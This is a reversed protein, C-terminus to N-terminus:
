YIRFGGTHDTTFLSLSPTTCWSAYIPGPFYSNVRYQYTNGSSVTNDLYSTTNAPLSGNLTTWAGGNLSREIQFGDENSATDSWVVNLYDNVNSKQILCNIPASFASATATTFQQVASWPSELNNTDWFKIRWYYTVGTFTLSSGAYSIDPSRTGSTINAISTKTSDWMVTGTFTNNTNVQIQYYNAPNSDPDSHIASFEPTADTVSSPNTAGECYPTSPASPPANMTFQATSSWASEGGVQDWVKIRWYYTTANLSLPTGAYSIQPTTSGNGVATMATKTSDWMTTGNFASTTNVQIQYYVGTDTANPDTFTAQFEPTLDTVGSPNTAGEAKLNTASPPANTPTPTPTNTPTNTPSATGYYVTLRMHDVYLIMLNHTLIDEVFFNHNDEVTIDWVIDQTNPVIDIKQIPYQKLDSGLLQDGVKLEDARIYSGNIYFRHNQTAKIIKDHYYVYFYRNNDDSIPHSYVAVVKKPEVTKTIENYSLVQDGTKIDKIKKYGNPTSIQSNAELSWCAGSACYEIETAIALGFDVDNIDTYTWTEGWLDTSNGYTHYTDTTTWNGSYAKNTTGITGDSKVISVRNDRAYYYNDAGAQAREIEGVIGLISNGSPISFGFNTAKLYATTVAGAFRQMVSADTNDSTTANSPLSWNLGSGNSTDSVVTGPSNPGATIDIAVPYQRSPHSLWIQGEPDIIKTLTLFSCQPNSCTLQYHLGYSSNEPNNVEYMVPQPIIWLLENTSTHYANIKKGDPAFIAHHLEIEQAIQPYGQFKNLIVEELLRNSELTYDADMINDGSTIIQNFTFKNGPSSNNKQGMGSANSIKFKMWADKVQFKVAKKQGFGDTSFFTQYNNATNMYNYEPDSSPTITTDIDQWKGNSDQYHMAQNDAVAAYKNNGLSYTKTSLTRREIVEQIPSDPIIISPDVTIPYQRQPDILWNYDPTLTIINDKISISVNQSQQNQSDFMFPKPITLQSNGKEDFFFYQGQFFHPKLNKLELIYKYVPPSTPPQYLIIDEKVGNKIKKYVADTHPAINKYTTQDKKTIIESSTNEMTIIATNNKNTAIQLQPQSTNTLTFTSTISKPPNTLSAQRCGSFILSIFLLLSLYKITKQM